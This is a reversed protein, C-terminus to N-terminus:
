RFFDIRTTFPSGAIPVGNLMIEVQFSGFVFPRWIAHYTGDGADQVTLAGDQVGKVTVAVQDGGHGVPNGEGDAVHVVFEMTQGFTGDPVDATTRGPDPAGPAVASAFPSGPVAQGGVRVDVQDAGTHVPRYSARYAGGGRDEVEASGVPNAGSVTVTIQGAAGPVPNGFQDKLTVEVQTPVGATGAPVAAASASAVPSGPAVTVSASGIATGAVTASITHQGAATASFRGTTTGSADTPGPQTLSVGDGTAALTVGQAPLPNGRSDRVVITIDSGDSGASASITEPSASVSSKDASAPGPVATATFVVPNGSVNDAAVTARLTNGGVSGGLTWRGVTAVGNADTVADGGTVSGGGSAVAFTVQLGAVPTGAADLVVVAPPMPVASGAPASQGDGAAAAVSAPAGVGLSVTTSTASAYGSAAFILTRAGPAGVIAIDTFAVQGDADSTRTTTGRLTGEGSAIQVTVAVGQRAAPNGAADQLQLVPQPDIVAGSTATAGPQTVLVLKAAVATNTFSAVDEPLLTVLATTGYSGPQSGLIRQTAARGDDGTMATAPQVDGGGAAAWTVEVGPVPNGFRDTVQVVLSDPLPELITGTQGDGSVVSVNAPQGENPLTLDGGGCAVFALLAICALPRHLLHMM